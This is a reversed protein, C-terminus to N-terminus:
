EDSRLDSELRERRERSRERGEEIAAELKEAEEESLIGAVEKWSREGAIRKVVESFSEGERKHAKLREYAEEDLSITKTAMEICLQTHVYLYRPRVEPPSQIANEVDSGPDCGIEGTRFEITRTSRSRRSWCNPPSERCRRPAFGGRYERTEGDAFELAELWGDEGNRVGTVDADIVDIPHTELMDATEESWEPEEERTLLDVNDTFNLVIAAVHAASESHGMVYVSQDVFMYADCHLCYHLGRGTRPLPPDPRVDNM